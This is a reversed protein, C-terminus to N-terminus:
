QKRNMNGYDPLIGRSRLIGVYSELQVNVQGEDLSFGAQFVTESCKTWNLKMKLSFPMMNDDKGPIIKVSYVENPTINIYTVSKMSCGSVSVNGLQGEGEFGDITLGANLDFNPTGWRPSERERFTVLQDSLEEKNKKFFM